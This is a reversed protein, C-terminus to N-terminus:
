FYYRRTLRRWRPDQMAEVVDPGQIVSCLIEPSKSVVLCTCISASIVPLAPRAEAVFLTEPSNLATAAAPVPIQQQPMDVPDLLLLHFKIRWMSRGSVGRSRSIKLIASPSTSSKPTAAAAANGREPITDNRRNMKIIQSPPKCPENNAFSRFSM